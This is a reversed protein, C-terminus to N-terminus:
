PRRLLFAGGLKGKAWLLRMFPKTALTPRLSTARSAPIGDVRLIVAGALRQADKERVGARPAIQQIYLGVTQEVGVARATAPNLERVVLGWQRVPTPSTARGQNAQPAPEAVLTVRGQRGGRSITLGVRERPQCQDLLLYVDALNVIRHGNWALLMDGVRLGAREAPGRSSVDKLVIGRGGPTGGAILGTWALGCEILQPAGGGNAEPSRALQLEARRRAGRRVFDVTVRNGPQMSEMLKVLAGRDAVVNGNVARIVDEPALGAAHAPGRAATGVVLAGQGDPVGLDRAADRTMHGIRLGLWVTGQPKPQDNAGGGTPTPFQGLLLAVLQEGRAWLDVQERSYHHRVADGRATAAARLGLGLRRKGEDLAVPKALELVMATVVGNSHVLVTLRRIGFKSGDYHLAVRGDTKEDKRVPEGFAAVIDHERAQGVVLGKFAPGGGEAHRIRVFSLPDPTREDPEM